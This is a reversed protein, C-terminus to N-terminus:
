RASFAVDHTVALRHMLAQYRANDIAEEAMLDNYTWSLNFVLVRFVERDIRTGKPLRADVDDFITELMRRKQVLSESLLRRLEANVSAIALVQSRVSHERSSTESKPQPLSAVIDSVTLPGTGGLHLQVVSFQAEFTEEYLQLMVQALLADRGGFLRYMTAIPVGSADAVRAVRM